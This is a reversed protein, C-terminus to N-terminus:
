VVQPLLRRDREELGHDFSALIPDVPEMSSLSKDLFTGAVARVNWLSDIM